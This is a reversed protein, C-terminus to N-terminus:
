LPNPASEGPHQLFHVTLAGQRGPRQARGVMQTQTARPLRHIIIVDTAAQLNIGAGYTHTSVLLAKTVDTSFRKIKNKLSIGTGELKENTVGASSLAISVSHSDYSTAVIVRRGPQKCIDVVADVKSLLVQHSPATATDTATPADEGSSATIGKLEPYRCMPCPPWTGRRHAFLATVCAQCMRKTCCESILAADPPRDELCLPCQWEVDPISSIELLRNRTAELERRIKEAEVRAHNFGVAHGRQRARAEFQESELEYRALSRELRQTLIDAITGPSNSETSSAEVTFGLHTMAGQVDGADLYRVIDAALHSRRLVNLEPPARCRVICVVPAPLQFSADVFSDVCRVAIQKWLGNNLHAATLADRIFGQHHHGRVGRTGSPFFLNEASSSVLWYFDARWVGAAPIPSSDAEDFVVRKIRRGASNKALQNYDRSKVFIIDNTKIAAHVTDPQTSSTLTVTKLTPAYIKAYEEWQTRVGHPVVIVTARACDGRTFPSTRDVSVLPALCSRHMAEPPPGHYIVGPETTASPYGTGFVCLTDREPPPAPDSPVLALLVLSKGAGVKDSYCGVRSRVKTGPGFTDTADLPLGREIDRLAQLSALQHQM